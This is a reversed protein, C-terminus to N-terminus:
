VNNAQTVNTGSSVLITAGSLSLSQNSTIMVNDVNSVRVGNTGNRIVNGNIGVASISAATAGLLRIAETADTDMVLHNGTVTVGTMTFSSYTRLYVGNSAMSCTNNAIVLGSANANLAEVSIGKGGAGSFTNGTIVVDELDTGGTATTALYIGTGTGSNIFQNNTITYSVPNKTMGDLVNCQVLVGNRVAGYFLNGSVVASGGQLTIGDDSSNDEVFSAVNDSFVTLDAEEHTDFAADKMASCTNNTAVVLRVVGFSGGCTVAHRMQDFTNGSVTVRQSGDAIAVGYGFGVRNSRELTCGIVKCDLSQVFRVLRTNFDSIHCNIITINRCMNFVVGVNNDESANGILRVNDLVVNEVPTLAQYQASSAVLYNGFVKGTTTVVTGTSSNVIVYEGQAASAWLQTDSVYLATGKSPSGTGGTANITTTDFAVNSTITVPSGLSGTATFTTVGDAANSADIVIDTLKLNSALTMATDCRYTLGNGTIVSAGSDIAAQIAATDDTVGDGVAGFQKVNVATGSAVPVAVNGNALTIGTGSAKVRYEGVEKVSVMQGATLTAAALATTTDFIKM